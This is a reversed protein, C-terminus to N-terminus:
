YMRSVLNDVKALLINKYEGGFNVLKKGSPEILYNSNNISQFLQESNVGIHNISFGGNLLTAFVDISM